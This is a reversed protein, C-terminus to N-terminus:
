TRLPRAARSGFDPIGRQHEGRDDVEAGQPHRLLTVVTQAAIRIGSEPGLLCQSHDLADPRQEDVGLRRYAAVHDGAVGVVEPGCAVRLFLEAALDCRKRLSGRAIRDLCGQHLGDPTVRFRLQVFAVPEHLQAAGFPEVSRARDDHRM